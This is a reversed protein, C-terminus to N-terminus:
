QPEGRRIKRSFDPDRDYKMALDNIKSRARVAEFPASTDIIGLEYALRDSYGPLLVEYSFPIRKPTITNVHRVINTTCTNTLTNYFEPERALKNARELMSVFMRRLKEPSTNVRYLFVDDGRYNSRLRMLDREDGVVYMLEYQRLLGKLVSFSEGKEKRIEVSIAVYGQDGFGFSVFTHAPGQREGFPEVVFWGSDLKRLDFTRDYWDASWRDSAQYDFNRINRITVLPGSFEAIPLRTQDDSWQRDNSPRVLLVFALIAIAFVAIARLLVSKVERM